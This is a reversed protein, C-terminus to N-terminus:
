VRVAALEPRQCSPASSPAAANGVQACAALLVVDDAQSASGGLGSLDVFFHPWPLAASSWVIRSTRLNYGWAEGLSNQDLGLAVGGTVWYLSATVSIAARSVIKGSTVNVGLLQDGETLYVTTQGSTALELDTSAQTWLRKGSQGSYALVGGSGSFLVIGDVADSLTGQFVCRRPGVETCDSSAGPEARVIREAGTRLDIRRLAPVTSGLSNPSDTMYLTQGSVRWTQSASGTARRWIVEGTSTRYATVADAGVIVTSAGDARVAGGYSAALYSHIEAGSAASLIVETRTGPQGAPPAVGVAVVGQFARVGVIASGAPVGTLVVSWLRRGTSETFATVTTGTGVVALGGGAGAYAGNQSTVTGSVGPEALWSGPLATTWLVSGAATCRPGACHQAIHSSARGPIVAAGVLVIALLARRAWVIPGRALKVVREPGKRRSSIGRAARIRM